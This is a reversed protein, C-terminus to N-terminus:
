GNVDLDKILSELSVLEGNPRSWGKESVRRIWLLQGALWLAKAGKYVYAEKYKRLILDYMEAETNCGELYKTAKVKGIGPCGEINDSAKDGVLVQWYFSRYAELDSILYKREKVFNYHWGPVMDLDKDISAIITDKTQAQGLADDAEIGYVVEADYEEVLVQRLFDYHKPKPAKRQAKYEPYIAFRFNSKDTSTLYCTFDDAEVADLMRSIMDNLRWKVISEETVDESAFGVRYVLIDSDILAKM